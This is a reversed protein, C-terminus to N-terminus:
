DKEKELYSFDAKTETKGCLKDKTAPTQAARWGKM